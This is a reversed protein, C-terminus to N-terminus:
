LNPIQKASMLRRAKIDFQVEAWFNQAQLESVAFAYNYKDPDVYTTIDIPESIANGEKLYDYHRTLSMYSKGFELAFDGYCEDVDTMYEIWAPVKGAIKRSTIQYQDNDDKEIETGWWAMREVLLDQYGIGDLAPKHLDDISFIDTLYFKNGQSYSVRPTLSIIGMIISPEEVTFEIHGGKEAVQKGRGGMTGIKQNEGAETTALVEEFMVEASKGGVYMPTEAKRITSQSYVAEQWDEYTGGSLAVRNLMNYVKQALNLADMALGNSTDIRTIEAIGNEGDIYETKIWNNFLDSQYTKCILGALPMDLSNVTNGNDDTFMKFSQSYLDKLTSTTDTNINFPVGRTTFSLLNERMDDFLSLDFKKLKINKEAQKYTDQLYKIAGTQENNNHYEVYGEILNDQINTYVLGKVKGTTELRINAFGSPKRLNTGKIKVEYRRYVDLSVNVNANPYFYRTTNEAPNIERMEIVYLSSQIENYNEATVIYFDDEQKNAYYNKFIDYYTLLPLANIKRSVLKGLEPAKGIGRLGLYAWLNAPNVQSTSYDGSTPINDIAQLEVIPLKIDKMKMGINIPNNHLIGQYLRMPAVFFDIQMKFSGFLPAKTPITRVIDKIDIDFKDGNLGVNVYCPYLLGPALSSKFNKSLNHTSRYYNHLEVNMKAGSGLRDGGVNVQM